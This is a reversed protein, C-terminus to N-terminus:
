TIDDIVHLKQFLEVCEPFKKMSNPLRAYKQQLIKNYSKKVDIM